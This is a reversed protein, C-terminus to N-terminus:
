DKLIRVCMWSGTQGDWKHWEHSNSDFERSLHIWVFLKLVSRYAMQGYVFTYDAV